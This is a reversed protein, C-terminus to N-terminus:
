IISTSIDEYYFGFIFGREMLPPDQPIRAHPCRCPGLVVSLSGDAHACIFCAVNCSAMHRWILDVECSFCKM